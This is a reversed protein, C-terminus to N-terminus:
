SHITCSWLRSDCLQLVGDDDGGARSDDDDGDGAHELVHHRFFVYVDDHFLFLPEHHEDWHDHSDADGHDDVVDHHVTHPLRHLDGYRVDDDDLATEQHARVFSVADDVDNETRPFSM